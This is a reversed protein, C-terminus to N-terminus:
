SKRETKVSVILPYIPLTLYPLLYYLTICFKFNTKPILLNKVCLTVFCFFLKNTINIGVKERSLFICLSIIIFTCPM